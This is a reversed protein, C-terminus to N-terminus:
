KVESISKLLKIQEEAKKIAGDALVNANGINNNPLLGTKIEQCVSMSISNDKELADLVDFYEEIKVVRGMSVKKIADYADNKGERRLVTQIYAASMAINENVESNIKDLNPQYLNIEELIRQMAIACKAFPEGINRSRISRRLDGQRKYKTLNHYKYLDVDSLIEWGGEITWPNRPKQAMVSSGSEGEKPINVL